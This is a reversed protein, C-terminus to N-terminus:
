ILIYTHIICDGQIGLYYNHLLVKKFVQRHMLTLGGVLRQIYSYLVKFRTTENRQGPWSLTKKIELIKKTWKRLHSSKFVHM